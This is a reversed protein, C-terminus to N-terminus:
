VHQHGCSRQVHRILHMAAGAGPGAMWVMPSTEVAFQHGSCLLFCVIKMKMENHSLVLQEFIIHM